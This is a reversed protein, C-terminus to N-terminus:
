YFINLTRWESGESHFKLINIYTVTEEKNQTHATLKGKWWKLSFASGLQIIQIPIQHWNFVVANEIVELSLSLHRILM